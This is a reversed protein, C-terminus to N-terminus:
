IRNFIEGSMRLRREFKKEPKENGKRNTAPRFHCYPCVYKNMYHQHGGTYNPEINGREGPTCGGHTGPSFLIISMNVLHFWFEAIMQEEEYEHNFDFSNM